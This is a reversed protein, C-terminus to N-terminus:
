HFVSVWGWVSGLVRGLVAAWLPALAFAWVIVSACASVYAHALANASSAFASPVGFDFCGARRCVAGHCM